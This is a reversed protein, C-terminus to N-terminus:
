KLLERLAPSYYFMVRDYGKIFSNYHKKTGLCLIPFTGQGDVGVNSSVPFSDSPCNNFIEFYYNKKQKTGFVEKHFKDCFKFMSNKDKFNYLATRGPIATIAVFFEKGEEWNMLNKKDGIFHLTNVQLELDKFNTKM